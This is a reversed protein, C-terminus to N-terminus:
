NNQSVVCYTLNNDTCEEKILTNTKVNFTYM